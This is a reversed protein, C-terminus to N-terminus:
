IRMFYINIKLLLNKKFYGPFEYRYASSPDINIEQENEVECGARRRPLGGAPPNFGCYFLYKDKTV